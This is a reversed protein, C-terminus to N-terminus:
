PKLTFYRIIAIILIYHIDASIDSDSNKKVGWYQYWHYWCWGGFMFWDPELLCTSNWWLHGQPINNLWFVKRKLWLGVASTKLLVDTAENIKSYKSCQNTLCKEKLIQLIIQSSIRNIIYFTIMARKCNNKGLSRSSMKDTM